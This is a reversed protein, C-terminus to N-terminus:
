DEVGGSGDTDDYVIRNTLFQDNETDVCSTPIQVVTGATGQVTTCKGTLADQCQSDTATAGLGGITDTATFTIVMAVM